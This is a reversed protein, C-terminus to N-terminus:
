AVSRLATSYREQLADCLGCEFWATIDATQHQDKLHARIDELVARPEEPDLERPVQAKKGRADFCPMSCYGAPPRPFSTPYRYFDRKCHRCRAVSM